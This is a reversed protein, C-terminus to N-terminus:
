GQPDPVFGPFPQPVPVPPRPERIVGRAVLNRYSDYHIAITEAPASSAREFAVYRAHSTESRGHGTGLKADREAAAGQAEARPATAPEDAGRRSLLSIDAPPQTSKRKFLAVGIVGVNEPRGTRAAYSEPLETFYFAATRELSKRWGKVELARWPSLVYGSQQPSATEGTVVNIGDVSMVALLDEGRRIRVSVQYENGPKGVVYARGEHWHVPLSRGESRDFVALDALNGISWAPASFALALAVGLIKVVKM